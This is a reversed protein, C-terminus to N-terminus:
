ADCACIGCYQALGQVRFGASLITLLASWSVMIIVTSSGYMATGLKLLLFAYHNSNSLSIRRGLQVFERAVRRGLFLSKGTEVPKPPKFKALIECPGEVFRDNSGIIGLKPVNPDLGIKGM